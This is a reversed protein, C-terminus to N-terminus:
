LSPLEARMIRVEVHGSEHATRKLWGGSTREEIVEHGLHDGVLLSTVVDLSRHPVGQKAISILPGHKQDVSWRSSPFTLEDPDHLQDETVIGRHRWGAGEFM